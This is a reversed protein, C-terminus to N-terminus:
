PCAKPVAADEQRRRSRRSEKEMFHIPCATRHKCYIETDRCRLCDECLYLEHKMCRYVASRDPHAACYPM